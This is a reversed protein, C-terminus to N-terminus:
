IRARVSLEFEVSVERVLDTARKSLKGTGIQVAVIQGDDTYFGSLTPNDRISQELETFLELARSSAKAQADQGRGSQVVNIMVAQTYDEQRPRSSVDMGRTTQEFEVDLFAIWESGDLVGAEPLGDSMPVNKLAPRARCAAIMAAAFSPITSSTKLTM